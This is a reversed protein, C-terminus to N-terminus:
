FLYQFGRQRFDQSLSFMSAVAVCFTEENDVEDDRKRRRRRRRERKEEDQMTEVMKEVMEEKEVKM